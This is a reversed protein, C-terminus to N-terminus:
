RKSQAIADIEVLVGLILNGQVTTRAPPESEFYRSYFINFAQLNSIDNLFVFTKVVDSLSLDVSELINKINELM